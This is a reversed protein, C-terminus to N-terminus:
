LIQDQLVHAVVVVQCLVISVSLLSPMPELVAAPNDTVFEVVM